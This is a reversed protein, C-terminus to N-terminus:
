ERTVTYTVKMTQDATKTVSSELNNVTALYLPNRIFGQYWDNIIGNGIGTGGLTYANSSNNDYCNCWYATNNVLDIIKCWYQGNRLMFLNTNLEDICWKGSTSSDTVTAALQTATGAAFDILYLITSNYARVIIKKTGRIPYYGGADPRFDLQRGTTNTWSYTTWSDNVADYYGVNVSANNALNYTWTNSCFLVGDGADAVYMNNGSVLSSPVSVSRTTAKSFLTISDVAVPKINLTATNNTVTAYGNQATGSFYYITNNAITGNKINPYSSSNGTITTRPTLGQTNTFSVQGAGSSVANSTSNGYGIKGGTDSTLCISAISGNGQSTTWDYVMIISNDNFSSEQSNWTALETVNSSNAVGYSGNGVMKTGAPMYAPYAGNVQSIATDFLFIGGILRVWPNASTYTGDWLGNKFYGSNIAFNSIGATFTNDHEIRERRGTRVNKLEITAHGHLVEPEKINNLFIDKAKDRMM